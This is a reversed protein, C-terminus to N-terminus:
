SFMIVSPAVMLGTLAHAGRHVNEKMLAASLNQWSSLHFISIFRAWQAKYNASIRMCLGQQHRSKNVEQHM